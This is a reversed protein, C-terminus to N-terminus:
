VAPGLEGGEQPGGEAAQEVDLVVLGSGVVRLGVPHYFAEVAAQLVGEAGAASRRVPDVVGTPGGPDGHLLWPLRRSWERESVVGGGVAAAAARRGRGRVSPTRSAPCVRGAATRSV